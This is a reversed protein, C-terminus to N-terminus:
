LLALRVEYVGAINLTKKMVLGSHAFINLMRHNSPLVIGTFETIGNARAIEALHKFLMTGIGIGQHADEVAFAVEATRTEDSNKNVIYRAVGVPRTEGCDVLIAGLAVHNVMDVETFYILEGPTLEDKPTLFRNYRSRKSLHHMGEQLLEKDEPVIARIVLSRGDALQVKAFYRKALAPIRGDKLESARGGSKDLRPNNSSM